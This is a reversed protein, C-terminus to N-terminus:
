DRSKRSVAREMEREHDRDRLTQRKDYSTKGKALGIEVKVKGEKLYVQLPVLTLGKEAVQGSIRDIERRHLLLKRDREPEHGGDRSFEYPGIYAGILFTEGGRVLAYLGQPGYSRRSAGQGRLRPPRYGGRPDGGSRLQTSGQPQIRDDQDARLGGLPESCVRELTGTPVESGVGESERLHRSLGLMSGMVGALAGFLLFLLGWQLFFENGVDFNFLAFGSLADALRSSGLWVVFVAAGAGILGEIMGELLFPIRVFWNSAGVLKMIAVEDRRSYIAMRITNAILIVASVGLVLALGLGLLNLM